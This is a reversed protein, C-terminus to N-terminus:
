RASSAGSSQDLSCQQRRTRARAASKGSPAGSPTTSSGCREPSANAPGSVHTRTVLLSTIDPGTPCFINDLKVKYAARRKSCQIRNIFECVDGRGMRMLIYELCYLYSVFPGERFARDITGFMLLARGKEHENLEPLRIHPCLASTLFPLSDYCKRKLHRARKLTHQIHKPGIYPGHALLYDWTLQPITCSSQQRMARCLYKKFRKLRTYSQHGCIREMSTYSTGGDNLLWPKAIGCRLCFALGYGTEEFFTSGCVCPTEM